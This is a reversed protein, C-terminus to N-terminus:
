IAVEALEEETEKRSKKMKQALRHIPFGTLEEVWMEPNDYTRVASRALRGFPAFTWAHYDLFSEWDNNILAKTPSLIYRLSPGTVASLPALAPHPWQNFFARERVKEDGFLWDATDQMYSMPPPLASDFISSVFIQGLAFVMLDATLQRQFRKGAQTNMDFGHVKARSYALRRFKISNWAFPMFRTFIKGTSTRSFAPRTSSHYLFQTAEVGKVAMKLLYPDNYQLNPILQNLTERTSLYHSLFSDRRLMRESKRMFWAGGDVVTKNFGHKKAIDYLTYDPMNYDEKLKSTFEKLFGKVKKGRFGRALSAESVIFSELAGSEEAFRNLFQMVNDRSIKTGDNLEAGRFVSYLYAPDKAKVFHRLGNNSITNTSGGLINGFATRPHSLLSILSWKAEFAGINQVIKRLAYDRAQKTRPLEKLRPFWSDEFSPLKPTDRGGLKFALKELKSSIVEDSLWYYPTHRVKRRIKDKRLTEKAQEFFEYEQTSIIKGEKDAKEIEKVKKEMRIRQDKTLGIMESNFVSPYGLVDRTYMKMHNEWEDNNDKNKLPNRRSFDSIRDHAILSTLNNYFSSIWQNSYSEIVDFDLSFGPMTTDGRAKGSGPRSNFGTSDKTIYEDSSHNALLWRMAHENAGGDESARNGLFVEFDQEQMAVFREVLKEKTIEGKKFLRIDAEAQTIFKPKINFDEISVDENRKIADAFKEINSRTESLQESIFEQVARRSARTNMHGMQPWYEFADLMAVEKTGVYGTPRFATKRWEVTGDPLTRWRKRSQLRYDLAKTSSPFYGKEAIRAELMIEYQIRYLADASLSSTEILKKIKNRDGQAAPELLKKRIRRMNLQGNPKYEFLEDLKGFEAKDDIKSWDIGSNIWKKYINQLLEGHQEGIWEVVEAGTKKVTKGKEVIEFEKNKLLEYDARNEEWLQRYHEARKSKSQNSGQQGAGRDNLMKSVAVRHLKAFQTEGDELGRIQDRLEYRGQIEEQMIEKEINTMTYLHGYSTSLYKMTSFPLKIDLVEVKGQKNLYPIPHKYMQSMDFSLSKEGIREPFMYYYIKKMRSSDAGEIVIQKMFRNFGRIDDWSSEGIRKAVGSKEQQYAAFFNEMFYTAEQPLRSLNTELEKLVKPIDKPVNEKVILTETTDKFRESFLTEIKTKAEIRRKTEGAGKGEEVKEPAIQKGIEKNIKTFPQNDEVLNAVKTFGRIFEEKRKESIHRTELPFRNFSTKNYWKTFNNQIRQYNNYLRQDSNSLEENQGRSEFLKEKARFKEVEADIISRTKQPSMPQNYLSSMMYNDFYDTAIAPDIGFDRAKKTIDSKVKELRDSIQNITQIEGIKKRQNGTRTTNYKSKINIASQALQRLFDFSVDRHGAEDMAEILRKGKKSVRLTSYLDMVDNFKLKAETLVDHPQIVKEAKMKKYLDVYKKDMDWKEKPDGMMGKIRLQRVNLAKEPTNLEPNDKFFKLLMEEARINDTKMYVSGIQMKKRDIYQGFRDFFSPDKLQENVESVLTRWPKSGGMLNIKIENDAMKNALHFLSNFRFKTSKANKMATQVENISWPKNAYHNRGYLKENIHYLNGYETSKLLSFNVDIRNGKKDVAYAEKFAKNFMLDRMELADIINWYESSDATRSSSEVAYKRYGDKENNLRSLDTKLVLNFDEYGKKFIPIRKVGGKKIVDATVYNLFTKANVVTGMSEKGYFSSMGVKRLAFPMYQSLKSSFLAETIKNPFGSGFDETVQKSPDKNPFMVEKKGVKTSLENRNKKVADRFKKPMNQYIFVKDGDVDAGDIYFHDKPHMYVGYDKKNSDNRIFGSFQLIRTGSVAPSPVRMIAYELADLINEKEKKNTTKKSLEWLKGLEWDAGSFNIKKKEYSYGLKFKGQKIHGYKLKSVPDVGAVWGSASYRWKPYTYKIKRYRQVMAQYLEPKAHAAIPDFDSYKAWRQLENVYNDLEILFEEEGFESNREKYQTERTMEKLLEKYLPKMRQPNSVIYTFQADGIDRIKFNNPIPMKPNKKMSEVVANADKTGEINRDFIESTFEQFADKPIQLENLLVHFQKKITQTKLLAGVDEYVGYDIRLDKLPIKITKPNKVIKGQKNKFKYSVGKKTKSAEGFYVETNNPVVKAADMTVIARNKNLMASDYEPHSPHIGGKVIFLQDGIYAAISPKLRSTSADFGNAELLRNYLETHLVMYGDIESEYNKKVIKGTKADKTYYTEHPIGKTNTKHIIGDPMGDIPIVEMDLNPAIDRFSEEMNQPMAKSAIQSEYKVRKGANAFQAGPEYLFNSLMAKKYVKKFAEQELRPAKNLGHFELYYKMDEEILSKASFAKSNKDRKNISDFITLYSDWLKDLEASSLNRVSKHYPYIREVGNDKKPIKLYRNGKDLKYTLDLWEAKEMVPVFKRTEKDWVKEYPKYIGYETDFEKFEVIKVNKDFAMTEYDRFTNTKEDYIIDRANAFEIKSKTEDFDKINSRIIKKGATPSFQETSIWDIWESEIEKSSRTKVIPTQKFHAEDPPVTAREAVRDGKNNYIDNEGIFGNRNYFLYPRFEENQQRNFLQKLSNEVKLSPTYRGNRHDKVANIFDVYSSGEKVSKNYIQLVEQLIESPSEKGKLSVEVERLWGRVTNSVNLEMQEKNTAENLYDGPEVERTSKDVKGDIVQELIDLKEEVTGKDFKEKQSKTMGDVVEQSETSLPTEETKKDTKTENIKKDIKDREKNFKELAKPTGETRSLIINVIDENGMRKHFEYIELASDFGVKQDLVFKENNRRYIWSDQFNKNLLTAKAPSLGAAQQNINSYEKLIDKAETIDKETGGKQRILEEAQISNLNLQKSDKFGIKKARKDLELVKDNLQNPLDQTETQMGQAEPILEKSVKDLVSARQFNAITRDYSELARAMAEAKEVDTLERGEGKAMKSAAEQADKDLILREKIGKLFVSAETPTDEAKQFMELQGVKRNYREPISWKFSNRVYAQAEPTLAKYDETRLMQTEKGVNKEGYVENEPNAFSDVYTKASRIRASPHTAGFYTGLLFEYMTVSTPADQAMALGGQLSGGLGAKVVKNWFWDEGAKQVKPNPHKLMKGVNVFNGIAGFAGGFAFGHISSALSEGLGGWASSVGSAIGLEAGSRYIDTLVDGKKLGKAVDFGARKLTPNILEKNVFGSVHFPISKGLPNTALWTGFDTVKDAIMKSKSGKVIGMGLKAAGITSYRLPATLIGPAFGILHGLSRAIQSGDSEPDDAWGLTTYGEVLGSSFQNLVDKWGADSKIEEAEINRKFSINHSKAHRGLEDVFDDNYLWPNAEYSAIHQRVQYPDM